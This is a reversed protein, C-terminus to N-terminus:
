VELCLLVAVHLLTPHHPSVCHRRCIECRDTDDAGAGHPSANGLDGQGGSVAHAQDIGVRALEAGGDVVDGLPQGAALGLDRGRSSWRRPM